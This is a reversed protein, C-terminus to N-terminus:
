AKSRALRRKTIWSPVFTIVVYIFLMIALL